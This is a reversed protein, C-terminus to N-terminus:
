PTIESLHRCQGRFRFGGCSCKLHGNEREVVYIDGKSGRVQWREVSTVEPEEVFGFTNPVEKFKRKRTDFRYKTKFKFLEQTGIRIYGHAYEKNDSLLYTHNPYYNGETTEQFFKM